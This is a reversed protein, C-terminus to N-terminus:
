LGWSATVRLQRPEVPHFHVDEVGGAPQGPIRSAYFYEIDSAKEDFVNLLAAAVRLDGFAWGVNLNMLSAADARISDDEILPYNGFHRLRLEAFPGSTEPEWTLGSAIVREIAGPIYNEGSPLDPFRARAFSVDLDAAFRPTIRYFNTWTIGFRRSADSAETTGADGVFLLESDLDITWGALTSRWGPMPTTRLGIEAGTSRVLPDVPDVAEGTIPDINQVAGRADNSHFGLGGSVYIETGERPTFVVSAKPSVIADSATGSNEPRDSTVEFAYYDGRLGLVTRIRRNWSSEIQVYAGTGWETAQDSRVTSVPQRRNTRLLSVDLFDARTQVGFTMSHAGMPRVYGFNAGAIWRGHDKQEIQDTSSPDDLYYTFDSFLDLDYYLGYLDLRESSAAGSHSWTASLSARSTTGGLTSDVQSFRGLVGNDVLGRPIQDSADWDNEYALALVSFLDDGKEWSYRAMGSFKRLGEAIAWPGDYRKIEFGGIFQGPGADGSVAAMVRQFGNQGLSTLLLPRDLSRKLHIEAGGASGFDGVDAYYNGLKYEVNDILEPILFNLDTYGQGHAHTPVNVQMGEVKTSFDTGHDLNFGRVFMQNAKGDGSHQTLIMGPVAELVEGERVLPRLRLDGYGVFGQSATLAIGTLDDSRGEVVIPDLVHIRISDAEASPQQAAGTSALLALFIAATPLALHLQNPLVRRARPMVRDATWRFLTEYGM